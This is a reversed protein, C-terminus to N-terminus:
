IFGVDPLDRAGEGGLELAAPRAPRRRAGDALAWSRACM